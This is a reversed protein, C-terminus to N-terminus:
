FHGSQLAIDIFSNVMRLVSPTILAMKAANDLHRKCLKLCKM